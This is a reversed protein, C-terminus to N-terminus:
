DMPSEVHLIWIMFLPNLYPNIFQTISINLTVILIILYVYKDHQYGPYFHTGGGTQSSLFHTTALEHGIM